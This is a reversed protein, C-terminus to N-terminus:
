PGPPPPAPKAAAAILRDLAAVFEWEPPSLESEAFDARPAYWHGRLYAYERDLLGKEGQDEWPFLEYTKLGPVTKCTVGLTKPGVALAAFHAKLDPDNFPKGHAAFLTNKLIRLAQPDPRGQTEDPVTLTRYAGTVLVVQIDRKPVLDKMKWVFCLEPEREVEFGCPALVAHNWLLTLLEDSMGLVSSGLRWEKGPYVRIEASGIPGNWLAGTRLIYELRTYNDGSNNVTRIGGFRYRNKVSRTQGPEFPVSWCLVRSIDPWRKLMAKDPEKAEAAVAEGDVWTEFERIANSKPVKQDEYLEWRWSDEEWTDPFGMLVEAPSASTNQFTFVCEASWTYYNRLLDKPSGPETSAPSPEVPRIVVTEAVMRVQTSQLPVVTRGQGTLTWSGDDAALGTSAALAMVAWFAGRGIRM